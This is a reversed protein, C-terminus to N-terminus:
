PHARDLELERERASPGATRTKDASIITTDDSSSFYLMSGLEIPRSSTPVSVSISLDLAVLVSSISRNWGAPLWSMSPM